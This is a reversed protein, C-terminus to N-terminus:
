NDMRIKLAVLSVTEQKFIHKHVCLFLFTLVFLIGASGVAVIILQKLTSKANELQCCVACAKETCQHNEYSIIFLESLFSAMVFCVCLIVVLAKKSKNLKM